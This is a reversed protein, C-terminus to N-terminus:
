RHTGNFFADLGDGDVWESIFFLLMKRFGNTQLWGTRIDKPIKLIEDPLLEFWSSM